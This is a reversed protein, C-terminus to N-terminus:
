LTNREEYVNAFPDERMDQSVAAFVPSEETVAGWEPNGSESMTTITVEPEDEGPAQGEESSTNAKRRRIVFFFILLIAAAILALLVIVIGAIAGGGLGTDGTDAQPPDTVIETYPLVFCECNVFVQDKDAEYEIEGAGTVSLSTNEPKDFCVLDEFKLHGDVHLDIYPTEKEPDESQFCSMTLAVEANTGCSLSLPVATNGTSTNVVLNDIACSSDVTLTFVNEKTWAGVLHLASISAEKCAVRGLVDASQNFVLGNIRLYTCSIDLVAKGAAGVCENFWCNVFTVNSCFGASSDLIASSSTSQCDIFRCSDFTLFGTNGSAGIVSIVGSSKPREENFTFNYFRCVIGSTSLAPVNVSIIGNECVNGSSSCNVFGVLDVPCNVIGCTVMTNAALTGFTNHTFSCNYFVYESPIRAIGGGFLKISIIGDGEHDEFSCDLIAVLNLRYRNPNVYIQIALGDDAKCGIFQCHSVWGGTTEDRISIAGGSYYETGDTTCSEFRCNQIAFQSTFAGTYLGGTVIAGGCKVSHCNTFNCGDAMFLGGYPLDFNMVGGYGAHSIDDFSCSDFYVISASEKKAVFFGENGAEAWVNATELTHGNNTFSSRQLAILAGEELPNYLGMCIACKTPSELSLNFTNDQFVIVECLMNLVAGYAEGTCDTFTCWTLTIKPVNTSSATNLVAASTESHCRVFDCQQFLIGACTDVSVAGPGQAECDYFKCNIVSFMHGDEGFGFCLAGAGSVNCQCRTFTCGNLDALGEKCAVAGGGAKTPHLAPTSSCDTFECWYIESPSDTDCLIAGGRGTMCYCDQFVCSACYLEIQLMFVAGGGQVKDEALSWAVGTGCGIFDCNQIGIYQLGANNPKEIHIAAGAWFSNETSTFSLSKYATSAQGGNVLVRTAPTKEGLGFAYLALLLM